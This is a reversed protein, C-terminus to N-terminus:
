LYDEFVPYIHSDEFLSRLYDPVEDDTVRTFGIAQTNMFWDHLNQKTAAGLRRDWDYKRVAIWLYRICYRNPAYSSLFFAGIYNNKRHRPEVNAGFGIFIGLHKTKEWYLTAMDDIYLEDDREQIFSRLVKIPLGKEEITVLGDCDFLNEVPLVQVSQNM